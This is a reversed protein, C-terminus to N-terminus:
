WEEKEDPGELTDSCHKVIEAVREGYRERIVALTERGGVDEVADHLLAAIAEDEDGGSDIVEGAVALLHGLYPITPEDEDAVKRPQSAHLDAAYALADTFRSGLRNGESLTKDGM